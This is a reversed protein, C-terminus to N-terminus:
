VDLISRENPRLVARGLIKLLAEPLPAPELKMLELEDYDDSNSDSVLGHFSRRNERSVHHVPQETFCPSKPSNRCRLLQMKSHPTGNEAGEDTKYLEPEDAGKCEEASEPIIFPPKRVTQTLSARDMGDNVLSSLPASYGTNVPTPPLTSSGVESLRHSSEGGEDDVEAEDKDLIADILAKYSDMEIFRWGDNGGYVQLLEKITHSIMKRSFGLVLMADIAADRRTLGVKRQRGRPAM